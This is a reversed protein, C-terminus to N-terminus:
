IKQYQIDDNNTAKVELQRGSILKNGELTLVGDSFHAALSKLDVNAPLTVTTDVRREAQPPNLTTGTVKVKNLDDEIVIKLDTSRIGPADISVLYSTESEVIHLGHAAESLEKAWGQIVPISRNLLHDKQCIRKKTDKYNFVKKLVFVTIGLKILFGLM